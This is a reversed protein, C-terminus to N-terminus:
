NAAPMIHGALVRRLGRWLAHCSALVDAEATENWPTGGPFVIRMVAGGRRSIEVTTTGQMITEHHGPWLPHTWKIDGLELVDCVQNEQLRLDVKGWGGRTRQWVYNVSSSQLALTYGLDGKLLVMYIGCTINSATLHRRSVNGILLLWDHLMLRFSRVGKFDVRWKNNKSLVFTGSISHIGDYHASSGAKRKKKTTDVKKKKSHHNNFPALMKRLAISATLPMLVSKLNEDEPLTWTGCANQIKFPTALNPMMRTPDVIVKIETVMSELDVLHFHLELPGAWKWKFEEAGWEVVRYCYRESTDTWLPARLVATKAGAQPMPSTTSSVIISSEEESEGMMVVHTYELRTGWTLSDVSLVLPVSNMTTLMTM